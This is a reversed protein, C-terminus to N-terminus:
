QGGRKQERATRWRDLDDHFRGGAKAQHLDERLQRVAEAQRQRVAEAQWWRGLAWGFGFAVSAVLLMVVAIVAEIM